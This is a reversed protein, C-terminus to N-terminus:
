SASLAADASVLDALDQVLEPIDSKVIGTPSTIVANNLVLDSQKNLVIKTLSM